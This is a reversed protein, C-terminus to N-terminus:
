CGTMVLHIYAHMLEDKCVVISVQVVLLDQVTKCYVKALYITLNELIHGYDKSKKCKKCSNWSIMYSIALNYICSRANLKCSRTLANEKPYTVANATVTCLMM